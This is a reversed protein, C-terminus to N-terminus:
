PPDYEQLLDSTGLSKQSQGIVTYFEIKSVHRLVVKKIQPRKPKLKTSNHVPNKFNIFSVLKPDM